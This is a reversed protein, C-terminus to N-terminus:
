SDWYALAHFRRIEFPSEGAKMAGRRTTHFSSYGLRKAIAPDRERRYNEPRGYPASFHRCPAGLEREVAEKSGGIEHEAQPDPLRGLDLHDLGHSGVTMGAVVLSRCEHWTLMEVPPYKSRCIRTASEPPADVFNVPVFFTAPVGRSALVPVANIWQNRFGDDFTICYFRGHIARSTTLLDVADDLSLFEGRGALRDLQREFGRIEDDFVHHYYLFRIGDCWEAFAIRYAIRQYVALRARQRPSLLGIYDLYTTAPKM